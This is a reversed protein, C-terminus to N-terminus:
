LRLCRLEPMFRNNLLNLFYDLPIQLLIWWAVSPIEYLVLVLCRYNLMLDKASGGYMYLRELILIDRLYVWIVQLIM